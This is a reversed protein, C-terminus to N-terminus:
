QIICKNSHLSHRVLSPHYSYVASEQVTCQTECHPCWFTYTLKTQLAAGLSSIDGPNEHKSHNVCRTLLKSKCNTCSLEYYWDEDTTKEKQPQDQKEDGKQLIICDPLDATKIYPAVIEPKRSPRPEPIKESKDVQIGSQFGIAWCYRPTELDALKNESTEIPNDASM